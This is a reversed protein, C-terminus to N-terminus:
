SKAHRLTKQNMGNVVSIFFLEKASRMLSVLNIEIIKGVLCM